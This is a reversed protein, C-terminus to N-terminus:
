KCWQPLIITNVEDFYTVVSSYACSLWVLLHLVFCSINIDTCFAGGDKIKKDIDLLVLFLSIWSRHLFSVFLCVFLCFWCIIVGQSTCSIVACSAGTLTHFDSHSPSPLRPVNRWQKWLILHLSSPFYMYKKVFCMAVRHFENGGSTLSALFIFPSILGIWPISTWQSCKFVFVCIRGRSSSTGTCSAALLLSSASSSILSHM